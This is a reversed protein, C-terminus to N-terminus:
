LPDIIEPPSDRKFIREQSGFEDNIMELMNEAQQREAPSVVHAPPSPTQPLSRDGTATSRESAM